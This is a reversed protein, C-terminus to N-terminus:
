QGGLSKPDPPRNQGVRERIIAIDRHIDPLTDIAVSVKALAVELWHLRLDQENNRVVAGVQLMITSTVIGFVILLHGLNITLDLRLKSPEM